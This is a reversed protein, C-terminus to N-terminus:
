NKTKKLYKQFLNLYKKVIKKNDFKVKVYKNAKYRIKKWLNPNQLYKKLANVIQETNNVDVLLGNNGVIESTAGSYKGAIIPVGTIMAEIYITGFTEVLSTHLLVDFKPFIKLLDRHEVHGHFIVNKDLNNKKAWKYAKEGIKMQHGMLCLTSNPSFKNFEKFAVLGRKINKFPVFGNNLMMIRLKKDIRKKKLKIKSLNEGLSTNFINEVRIKTYKETELKAYYSPATIKKAIRLNKCAMFYRSLRTINKDYKIILHPIDHNTLIYKKKSKSAALAYEYAWNAYVLDPNDQEIAESLHNVEKKYLLGRLRHLNNRLPCYYIKLKKNKCFIIRNKDIIDSSLTIISVNHGLKVLGLALNQLHSVGHGMPLSRRDKKKILPYFDYSTIPGLIAIKM